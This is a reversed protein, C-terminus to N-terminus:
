TLTGIQAVRELAERMRKNSYDIQDLRMKTPASALTIQMAKHVEAYIETPLYNQLYTDTVETYEILGPVEECTKETNTIRNKIVGIEQQLQTYHFNQNKVMARLQRRDIVMEELECRSADLTKTVEAKLSIMERDQHGRFQNMFNEYDKIQLQTKTLDKVFLGREQVIKNIRDDMDNLQCNLADNGEVAKDISSAM